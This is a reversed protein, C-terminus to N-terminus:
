IHKKLQNIVASDLIFPNKALLVDDALREGNNLFLIVYDPAKAVYVSDGLYACDYEKTNIEM